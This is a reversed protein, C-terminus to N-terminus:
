AGGTQSAIASDDFLRLRLEQATSHEWAARFSRCLICLRAFTHTGTGHCMICSHLSAHSGRRAGRSKSLGTGSCGACKSEWTHMVSQVGPLMPATLASPGFVTLAM